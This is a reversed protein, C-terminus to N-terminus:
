WRSKGCSSPHRGVSPVERQASGVMFSGCCHLLCTLVARSSKKKGKCAASAPPEYSFLSKDVDRVQSMLRLLLDLARESLCTFLKVDKMHLCCPILCITFFLLVLVFVCSSKWIDSFWRALCIPNSISQTVVFPLSDTCSNGGSLRSRM